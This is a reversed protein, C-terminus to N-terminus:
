PLDVRFAWLTGLDELVVVEGAPGVREREM